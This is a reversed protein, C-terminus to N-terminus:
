NARQGDGEEVTSVDMTASKNKHSSNGKYKQGFYSFGLKKLISLIDKHFLLTDWPVPLSVTGTM